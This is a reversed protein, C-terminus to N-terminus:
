KKKKEKKKVEKGKKYEKSSFVTDSKYILWEGNKVGNKYSRQSILEGNPNYDLFVGDKVGGTWNEIRQLQGNTYWYKWTWNKLGGFYFGKVCLNGKRDHQIFSGDLLKGSYDGRTEHLITDYWRYWRDVTKQLVEYNYQFKTITDKSEITHENNFDFTVKQWDTQANLVCTLLLAIFFTLPVRLM